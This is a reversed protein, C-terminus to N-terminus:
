VPQKPYNLTAGDGCLESVVNDYAKAADEEAAFTGVYRHTGKDWIYAQWCKSRKDWHVGHFRSRVHQGQLMCRISVAEIQWIQAPM